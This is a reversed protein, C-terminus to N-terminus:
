QEGLAEIDIATGDRAFGFYDEKGARSLKEILSRAREREMPDEADIHSMAKRGEGVALLTAAAADRAFRDCDDLADRLADIGDPLNSLGVAANNRVWWSTDTLVHRLAPVAMRDGGEGLSKAAQARVEWSPDRLSQILDQVGVPTCVSGLASVARTRVEKDPFDLMGLLVPESRHDGIKGLARIVLESHRRSQAVYENLVPVAAAGFLGLSDTIRHAVWGEERDLQVLIPKVAMPDGIRALAAVAQIRVEPVPDTLVFMLRTATAPDALETLAEAARVRVDKNRSHLDAVFRRELGISVAMRLLFVREEGQLFRLYEVLVEQLVPDSARRRVARPISVKEVLVRTLADVYRGRRESALRRERTGKLKMWVFSGVLSVLAVATVVAIKALWQEV